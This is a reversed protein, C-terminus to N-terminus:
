WRVAYVDERWRFLTLFYKVKEEPSSKTTVAGAPASAAAPPVAVEPVPLGLRGRLQRNEEGLRACEALAESLKAENSDSCEHNGTPTM